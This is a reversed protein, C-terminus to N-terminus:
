DITTGVRVQKLGNPAKRSRDDLWLSYEGAAPAVFTITARRDVRGMDILRAGNPGTLYVDLMGDVGSVDVTNTIRQGAKLGWWLYYYQGQELPITQSYQEAVTRPPPAATPAAVVVVPPPVPIVATPEPRATPLPAAIATASVVPLTQTPTPSATPTRTATAAVAVTATAAPTSTQTAPLSTATAVRPISLTPTAVVTGTTALVATDTPVPSTLVQPASPSPTETLSLATLTATAEGGAVPTRTPRSAVAVAARTPSAVVRGQPRNQGQDREVLTAWITFCIALVLLAVPLRDQPRLFTM